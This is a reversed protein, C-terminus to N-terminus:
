PAQTPIAAGISGVLPDAAVITYPGVDLPRTRFAEAQGDLDQAM